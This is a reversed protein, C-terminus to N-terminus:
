DGCLESVKRKLLLNEEKLDDRIQRLTINEAELKQVKKRFQQFADGEDM